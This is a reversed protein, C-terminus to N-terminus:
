EVPLLHYLLDYRFNVLTSGFHRRTCSLPGEGDIFLRARGIIKQSKPETKVLYMATMISEERTSQAMANFSNKERLTASSELAEFEYM